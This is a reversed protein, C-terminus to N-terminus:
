AEIPYRTVDTAGSRYLVACAKELEPTPGHVIVLHNGADVQLQYKRLRAKPVGWDLLTALLGGCATDRLADEIGPVMAGALPGVVVLAGTSPKWIFGAGVLYGFLGGLWAEAGTEGVDAIYGHVETDSSLDQSVVSISQTGVGASLM